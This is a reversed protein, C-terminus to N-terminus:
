VNKYDRFSYAIDIAYFVHNRSYDNIYRARNDGVFTLFILAYLLLFSVNYATMDYYLMWCMFGYLNLMISILCILQVCLVSISLTLTSLIYAISADIFGASLYYVPANIDSLFVSHTLTGTVFFLQPLKKIVPVNILLIYFLISILLLYFM